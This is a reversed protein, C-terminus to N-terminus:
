RGRRDKRVSTLVIGIGILMSGIVFFCLGLFEINDTQPLDALPPFADFIWEEAEIDWGWRGLPVGDEDLELWGDGDPVIERGNENPNPPTGPDKGGPADTVNRLTVPPSTPDPETDSVYDSLVDPDFDDDDDDDDDNDDGIDPDPDPDPSPSPRPSPDPYVIPNPPRTDDPIIAFSNTFGVHDGVGIKLESQLNAFQAYGILMRQDYLTWAENPNEARYYKGEVSGNMLYYVDDEVTFVVSGAGNYEIDLADRSNVTATGSAGGQYVVDGDPVTKITVDMSMGLASTVDWGLTLPHAPPDYGDYVFSLRGSYAVDPDFQLKLSSIAKGDSAGSYCDMMSDILDVANAFLDLGTSGLYLPIESGGNFFGSINNRSGIQLSPTPDNYPHPYPTVDIFDPWKSLDHPDWDYGPYLDRLEFYWVLYRALYMCANTLAGWTLGNYPATETLGFVKVFDNYGPGAVGAETTLQRYLAYALSSHSFTADGFEVYNNYDGHQGHGGPQSLGKDACFAKFIVSAADTFDYLTDTIYTLTGSPAPRTGSSVTAAVAGTKASSHPYYIDANDSDDILVMVIYSNDDYDWGSVAGKEESVKFFYTGETLGEIAFSFPYEGAGNDAIVTEEMPNPNIDPASVAAGHEDAVQTLTFTFTEVPVDTGTVTKICDISISSGIARSNILTLMPLMALVMSLTLIVSWARTKIKGFM